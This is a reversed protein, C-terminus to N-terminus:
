FTNKHGDGTTGSGGVENCTKVTEEAADQGSRYNVYVYAGKSALAISIARGIGRSGGTILAGNGSLDVM